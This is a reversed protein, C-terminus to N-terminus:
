AQGSHFAHDSAHKLERLDITIKFDEGCRFLGRLTERQRGFRSDSIGHRAKGGFRPGMLTTRILRPPAALPKARVRCPRIGQAWGIPTRRSMM